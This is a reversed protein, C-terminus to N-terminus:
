SKAFVGISLFLRKCLLESNVVSSKIDIECNNLKDLIKEIRSVQWFFLQKSFQDKLKFFVPPRLKSMAQIKTQGNKM